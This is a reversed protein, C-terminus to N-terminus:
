RGRVIVPLPVGDSAGNPASAVLHFPYTSATDKGKPTITLVGQDTVEVGVFATQSTDLTLSFTLDAGSLDAFLPALDFSRPPGEEQVELLPIPITTRVPPPQTEIEPDTAVDIIVCIPLDSSANAERTSPTAPLRATLTLSVFAPLDEFEDADGTYYITHNAGLYFKSSNPALAYEPQLGAEVSQADMIARPLNLIPVDDGWGDADKVAVAGIERFRLRPTRLVQWLISAPPSLVGHRNQAVVLALGGTGGALGDIRAETATESLQQAPLDSGYITQRRAGQGDEDQWDAPPQWTFVAQGNEDAFTLATPRDPTSPYHPASTITIQVSNTSTAPRSGETAEVSAWLRMTHIGRHNGGGIYHLKGNTIIFLDAATGSLTYSANLPRVSSHTSVEAVPLADTVVVPVESGDKREQLTAQISDAGGFRLEVPYIAKIGAAHAYPSAIGARNIARVRLTYTIGAQAEGLIAGTPRGALFTVPPYPPQDDETIAWEYQRLGEGDEDEGWSAIPQWVWSISATTPDFSGVAGTPTDPAAEGSEALVQLRFSVEVPQAPAHRPGPATTLIARLDLNQADLKESATIRGTSADISLGHAEWNPDSPDAAYAVDVEEAANARASAELQGAPGTKGEGISGTQYGQADIECARPVLMVRVAIDTHTSAKKATKSAQTSASVRLEARIAVDHDIGAGVYCLQGGDIAWDEAETRGDQSTVSYTIESPEGDSHPLAQLLGLLM